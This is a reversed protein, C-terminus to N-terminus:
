YNLLLACGLKDFDRAFESNGVRPAGFTYLRVRGLSVPGSGVQTRTQANMYTIHTYTRTLTHTRMHLICRHPATRICTRWLFGYIKLKQTQSWIAYSTPERNSFEKTAQEM